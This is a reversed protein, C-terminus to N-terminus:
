GPGARAGPSAAVRGGLRAAVAEVAEDILGICTRHYDPSLGYPDEIHPRRRRAWLGLLTVPVGTPLAGRLRGLHAPEMALVLDSDGLVEATAPPRSRHGALDLGAEAALRLMLPPAEDGGRTGLGFSLAEVGMARARAEAYASRCINGQCVFVLREIQRWDVRGLRAYRGSYDLVSHCLCRVLGQKRGYYRGVWGTRSRRAVGETPSPYWTKM